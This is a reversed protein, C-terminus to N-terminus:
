HTPSQVPSRGAPGRQRAMRDAAADATRDVMAEFIEVIAPDFQAGPTAAFRTGPRTRSAIAKRYVRDNTM